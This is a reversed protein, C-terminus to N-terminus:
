TVPNFIVAITFYTEKFFMLILEPYVLLGLTGGSASLESIPLHGKFFTSEEEAWIEGNCFYNGADM